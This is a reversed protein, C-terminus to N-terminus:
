YIETFIERMTIAQSIPKQIAKLHGNSPLRATTRRGNWLNIKQSNLESSQRRVSVFHNGSAVSEELGRKRWTWLRRFDLFCECRCIIHLASTVFGMSISAACHEARFRVVLADVLGHWRNILRDILRDVSWDISPDISRDTSRDKWRDTWGDM